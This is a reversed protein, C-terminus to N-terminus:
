KRRKFMSKLKTKINESESKLEKINDIDYYKKLEDVPIYDRGKLKEILKEGQSMYNFKGIYVKYFEHEKEIIGYTKIYDDEFLYIKCIIENRYKKYLNM